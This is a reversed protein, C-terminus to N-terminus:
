QRRTRRPVEHVLIYPLGTVPWEYTGPAIGAHGIRPFDALQAASALIREVVRAASRPNREAVYSQIASIHEIAELTFRLRM